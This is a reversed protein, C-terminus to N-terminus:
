PERQFLEQVNFFYIKNIEPLELRLLNESTPLEAKTKNLFFFVVFNRVEGLKKVLQKNCFTM